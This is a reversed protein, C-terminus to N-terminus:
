DPDQDGDIPAIYATDMAIAMDDTIKSTGTHMMAMVFGLIFITSVTLVVWDTTVAGSKDRWFKFSRIWM